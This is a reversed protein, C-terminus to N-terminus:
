EIIIWSNRWLSWEVKALNADDQIYRRSPHGNYSVFCDAYVEPEVSWLGEYRDRLVHAYELIMDAQFSMQKLQWPELYDQPYVIISQNTKPNKIRYEIHGAKEVLMVRWSFRFGEETWLVNGAYCYHRFPLLFQIIFFLILVFKLTIVRFLHQKYSANAKALLFEFRKFTSHPFFILTAGIMIFPFMGINFLLYTFLHFFIVTLYALIRTRNYWLLFAISLDYIAGAWSMLYAFVTSELLGGILPMDSKSGLWIRLPQANLLWDAELKAIGAFFYVFALLLQISFITWRPVKELRHKPFLKADLSANRNLPLFILVATLLSVFYYHNLYLAKEILETYTFLLFFLLMFLRYFLGVIIGVCAVLMIIYITYLDSAKPVEVWDFGYYTFHFRPNLYLEEIWGKLIFRSISAFLVIGLIIRFCVLPLISTSGNLYTRFTQISGM